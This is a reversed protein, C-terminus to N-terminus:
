TAESICDTLSGLSHWMFVGPTLVQMVTFEHRQTVCLFAIESADLWLGVFIRSSSWVSSRCGLSHYPAAMPFFLLVASVLAM